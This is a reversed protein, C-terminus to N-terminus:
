LVHREKESAIGFGLGHLHKILTEDGLLPNSHNLHIFRIDTPYNKFTTMADVIPPHPIESRDRDPLENVSYFTGDLLAIDAEAIAGLIAGEWRDIDPCYILKRSPGHLTFAVTNSVEDRHPVMTASVHLTSSLQQPRVLDIPTPAINGLAILQRWPQSERLFGLMRRSGFVPLQQQNWSERGLFALGLYHGMHAHTLLVGALRYGPVTLMVLNIQERIDPSADILWYRQSQHDLIALSAVLRQKAKDRRAEQCHPCQCGIQPIGGDQATGVIMVEVQHPNMVQHLKASGGDYRFM